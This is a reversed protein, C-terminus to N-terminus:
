LEVAGLSFRGDGCGFDILSGAPNHFVKELFQRYARTTIYILPNTEFSAHVFPTGSFGAYFRRVDDSDDSVCMQIVGDDIPYAASCCLCTIAEARTKWDSTGCSLCKLGSANYPNTVIRGLIFGDLPLASSALYDSDMALDVVREEADLLPIQRIRHEAMLRRLEERATGISAIVPRGDRERDNRLALLDAIPQDLDIGILIARRVDGDTITAELRQNSDVVLTIGLACRDMLSMLDRVAQSKTILPLERSPNAPM